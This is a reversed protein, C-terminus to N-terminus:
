CPRLYGRGDCKNTALQRWKEYKSPQGFKSLIMTHAGIEASGDQQAADRLELGGNPAEAFVQASKARRDALLPQLQWAGSASAGSHPVGLGGSRVVLM